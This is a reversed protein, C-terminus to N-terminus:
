LSRLDRLNQHYDQIIETALENVLSAFQNDDTFDYGTRDGILDTFSSEFTGRRLIPIFKATEFNRCININIIQHEVNTGGIYREAKEKYLPTGIVLVKNANKIGEMMFRTLSSGKRLYQDLRVEIDYKSLTDALM